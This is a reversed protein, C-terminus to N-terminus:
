EMNVETYNLLMAFNLWVLLPLLLYSSISNLGYMVLILNCLISIPLVYLAYKKNKKCGYMVVWSNLLIILTIYLIDVVNRNKCNCNRLLMWSIGILVYLISWVIGFVIPPPRAKVEVGAENGVNCIRSTLFGSLAPILVIIIDIIRM